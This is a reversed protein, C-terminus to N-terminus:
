TSYHFTDPWLPFRQTDKPTSGVWNLSFFGSVINEECFSSLCETGDATVSTQFSLYGYAHDGDCELPARPVIHHIGKSDLFYGGNHDHGSIIAITGGVSEGPNMIKAEQAKDNRAYIISLVEDSNWSVADEQCCDALLPTHIIIIVKERNEISQKLTEDLWTLQDQSIAGNFPVYKRDLRNLGAYWDPLNPDNLDNPNNISLILKALRENEVSSSCITSIDFADLFIFRLGVIPSYDYYLRSPSCAPRINQPVFKELYSQIDGLTIAQNINNQNLFDVCNQTIKLSNRYRRCILAGEFLFEGDVTDVYQIDAIIGICFQQSTM